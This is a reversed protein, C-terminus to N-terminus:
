VYTPLNLICPSFLLAYAVFAHSLKVCNKIINSNIIVKFIKKKTFNKITRHVEADILTNESNTQFSLIIYIYNNQERKRPFKDSM